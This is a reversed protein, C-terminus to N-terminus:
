IGTMTTDGVKQLRRVLSINSILYRLSEQRDGQERFRVTLGDGSSDIDMTKLIDKMAMNMAVISSAFTGTM